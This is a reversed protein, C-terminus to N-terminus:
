QHFILNGEQLRAWQIGYGLTVTPANPFEIVGSGVAAVVAGSSGTLSCGTRNSKSPGIGAAGAETCPNDTDAEV